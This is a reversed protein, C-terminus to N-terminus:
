GLRHYDEYPDHYEECLRVTLRVRQRNVGLPLSFPSALFPCEGEVERRTGYRYWAVGAVAGCMGMFIVLLFASGMKAIEAVDFAAVMVVLIAGYVGRGNAARWRPQPPRIGVV